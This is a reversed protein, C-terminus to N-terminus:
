NVENPNICMDKYEEAWKKADEPSLKDEEFLGGCEIVVPLLFQKVRTRLDKGDPNPTGDPNMEKCTGQPKNYMIAAIDSYLDATNAADCLGIFVTYLYSYINDFRNALIDILKQNYKITEGSIGGCEAIVPLLFQKAKDRFIKGTPNPTGDSNMEKCDEQNKNYIIGAVFSYLDDTDDFVRFLYAQLHDFRDELIRLMNQNYM